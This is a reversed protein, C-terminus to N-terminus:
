SPPDAHLSFNMIPAVGVRLVSEDNSPDENEPNYADEVEDGPIPKMHARALQDLQGDIGKKNEQEKPFSKAV